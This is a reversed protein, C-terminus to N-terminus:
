SSSLLIDKLPLQVVFLFFHDLVVQLALLQLPCQFLAKLQARREISEIYLGPVLQLNVNWKFSSRLSSHYAPFFITLGKFLCSPDM